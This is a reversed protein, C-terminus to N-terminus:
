RTYNKKLSIDSSPCERFFFFISNVKLKKKLIRARKFENFFWNEAISKSECSRLKGVSIANKKKLKIKNPQRLYM